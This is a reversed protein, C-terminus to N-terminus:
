VALKLALRVMHALEAPGPNIAEIPEHSLGEFGWGRKTRCARVTLRGDDLGEVGVKVIGKSTASRSPKVGGELLIDGAPPM